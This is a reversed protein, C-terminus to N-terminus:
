LAGGVFPPGSDYDSASRAAAREILKMLGFVILLLPWTRSFPFPGYYDIAFLAGLMMLLIPGRVARALALKTEDM